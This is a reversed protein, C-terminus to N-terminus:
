SLGPVSLRYAAVPCSGEPRLLAPAPRGVRAFVCSKVAKIARFLARGLPGADMEPPVAETRAPSLDTKPPPASTKKKTHTHTTSLCRIHYKPARISRKWRHDIGHM